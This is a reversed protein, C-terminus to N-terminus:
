NVLTVTDRDVEYAWGAEDEIAIDNTLEDVWTVKYKNGDMMVMDGPKM